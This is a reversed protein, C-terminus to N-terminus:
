EFSKTTKTMKSQQLILKTQKLRPLIGGKNWVSSNWQGLQLKRNPEFGLSKWYVKNHNFKGFSMGFHHQLFHFLCYICTSKYRGVLWLFSIAAMWFIKLWLFVARNLGGQSNTFVYRIDFYSVVKCSCIAFFVKKASM